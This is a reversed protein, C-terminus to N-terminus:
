CAALESLIQPYNQSKEESIYLNQTCSLVPFPTACGLLEPFIWFIILFFTFCWILIQVHLGRIGLDPGLGSRGGQIYLWLQKM